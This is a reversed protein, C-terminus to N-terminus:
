SQKLGGCQGPDIYKDIIPLIIDGLINELLKSLWQPKSITRLDDETQPQKSKSKSLVITQEVVWQRPWEASRIVKNIMITAPEAFEFMFEKMIKMPIDGPVCSKPKNVKVVKHYVEQQTFVPRNKRTKGKEIALRLAPHFKELELPEVSQSITSFHSALRDAAMQSTLGLEVYAPLVIETQKSIGPQDGLKRIAKYGSNRKGKKIEDIIKNRYKIAEKLKKAEFLEKCTRYAESQKGKRYARQRRRKLKRLEQTFYPLDEPSSWVTKTPFQIDVMDKTRKEFYDVMASSDEMEEMKAWNEEMLKCGFEALGSEPFPQVTAKQRMRAGEMAANSRPVCEVGNHDSNKGVKGEDVTMPPVIVPEQYLDQCDMILVDLTKDQNKNTFGRVTQRMTPDLSMLLGLNMNNIDAGLIVRAGPHDSRLNNITAVRFEALKNNFKSKPPSYFSCCIFTTVKGTPKRPKVLAFCAELPKPIPINLKTMNFKEQSCALATGGGRRAGPRPTSVYKIGKLELMAEIAKQHKKSEVRQWVETMFCIDISRMEM